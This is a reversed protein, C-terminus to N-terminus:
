KVCRSELQKPVPKNYLAHVWSNSYYAYINALAAPSYERLIDHATMADNVRQLDEGWILAVERISYGGYNRPWEIYARAILQKFPRVM